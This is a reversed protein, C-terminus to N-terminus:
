YVLMNLYNFNPYNLSKHEVWFTHSCCYSLNPEFLVSSWEGGALLAVLVIGCSWVDAPEAHYDLGAYM